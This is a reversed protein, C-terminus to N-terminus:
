MGRSSVRSLATKWHVGVGGNGTITPGFFAVSANGLLTLGNGLNDSITGGGLQATSTGVRIGVENNLFNSNSTQFHSGSGVDVGQAANGQFVDNISPLSQILDGREV